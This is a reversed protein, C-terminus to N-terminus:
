QLYIRGRNQPRIQEQEIKVEQKIEEGAEQRQKELKQEYVRIDNHLKTEFADRERNTIIDLAEWPNSVGVEEKPSFERIWDDIDLTTVKSGSELKLQAEIMINIELNDRLGKYKEELRM